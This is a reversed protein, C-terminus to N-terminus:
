IFSFLYQRTSYQGGGRAAKACISASKCSCLFCGLYVWIFRSIVEPVSYSDWCWVWIFSLADSKHSTWSTLNLICGLVSVLFFVLDWGFVSHFECFSFMFSFLGICLLYEDLVGLILCSNECSCKSWRISRTRSCDLQLSLGACSSRILQALCTLRRSLSQGMWWPGCIILTLLYEIGFRLELFQRPAWGRCNKSGRINKFCFFCIRLLQPQCIMCFPKKLKLTFSLKERPNIAPMNRFGSTM